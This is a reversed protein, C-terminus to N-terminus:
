NLESQDLIAGYIQVSEGDDFSNRGDYWYVAVNGSIQDVALSPLIQNKQNCKNDAVLLPSSWTIGLDDSWLLFPKYANSQADFRDNMVVYLRNTHKSSKDFACMFSTICRNPQAPPCDYYGMATYAVYRKTKFDGDAGNENIFMTIYTNKDGTNDFNSGPVTYQYQCVAVIGTNSVSVWPFQDITSEITNIKNGPVINGIGLGQISVSVIKTDYVYIQDINTENVAVWLMDNSNNQVDPGINMQCFDLVINDPGGQSDITYYHSFTNGKDSSYIFYCKIQDPTQNGVSLYIIHLGGFRDFSIHIDTGGVPIEPNPVDAGMIKKTWTIGGDFSRSLVFGARTPKRQQYAVAIINPNTHDIAASGEAYTFQDSLTEGGSIMSLNIPQSEIIAGNEYKIKRLAYNKYTLTNNNLPLSPSNDAWVAYLTNNYFANNASNYDGFEFHASFPDSYNPDTSSKAANSFGDWVQFNDIKNSCCSSLINYTVSSTQSQFMGEKLPFSGLGTFRLRGKFDIEGVYSEYMGAVSFTIPMANNHRYIQPIYNAITDIYGGMPFNSDPTNQDPYEQATLLVSFSPVTITIQDVNKTILLIINFPEGIPDNTLNEKSLTIEVQNTQMNRKCSRKRGCNCKGM